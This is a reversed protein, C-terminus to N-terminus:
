NNPVALNAPEIAISAELMAEDDMREVLAYPSKPVVPLEFTDGWFEQFIEGVRKNTTFLWVLNREINWVIDYTKISPMVRKRLKKHLSDKIEEEESKSIKEKGSKALYEVIEKKLFLKFAAPPVRISDHRLTALIYDGWLMDNLTFESEFPDHTTVWGISEDEDSRPDIDKFGRKNLQKLFFDKFDKPLEGRVFFETATVNGSLAGM